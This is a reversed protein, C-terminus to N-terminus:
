PKAREGGPLVTPDDGPHQSWDRAFSSKFPATGVFTTKGRALMNPKEPKWIDSLYPLPNVPRGALWFEFHLHSGTSRGTSGMRAICGGQAVRDGPHVLIESLHGYRSLAGDDHRLEVLIGFGGRWGAFRVVGTAAALVPTGLAGPLDIGNHM